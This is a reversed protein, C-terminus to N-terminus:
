RNRKYYSITLDMGDNFSIKPIFGTDQTLKTINVCSSISKKSQEELSGIRLPIKKDIKSHIMEIYYRLTHFEGSGIGYVSNGKGKEYISILARAVESVYLFDWMQELKGYKPSEGKLLSCITYTLINDETRGPGFTSPLIAWIFKQNREKAIAELIYHTATKCAGYIDNPAQKIDYNITEPSAAYEAVTGTGIFLKCGLKYSLDLAKISSQINNLQIERNNKEKNDVGGWGLHFFCDYDQEPLNVNFDEYSCEVYHLLPSTEERPHSCLVTVDIKNEILQSVLYSGIFGTGGTVIVHKM